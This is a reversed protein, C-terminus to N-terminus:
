SSNKSGDAEPFDAFCEKIYRSSYLVLIVAVSAALQGWGLKDVKHVMGMWLPVFVVLGNFVVSLALLARGNSWVISVFRSAGPRRRVGSYIVLAAPIGAMLGLWMAFKDAYFLNILELPDKRNVLSAISIFYPRVLFLQILWMMANAKLCLNRDYSEFSYKRGM